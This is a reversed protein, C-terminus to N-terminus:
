SAARAVGIERDALTRGAGTIALDLAFLADRLADATRRAGTDNTGAAAAARVTKELAALLPATAEHVLGAATTAYRRAETGGPFRTSAEFAGDIGTAGRLSIVTM